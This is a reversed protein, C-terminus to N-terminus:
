FTGFDLKHRTRYTKLYRALSWHSAFMYAAAQELALPLYGLETALEAASKADPDGSRETLLAAADAPSMVDVDLPQVHHWAGDRSTLIVAGSGQPLWDKVDDETEANDYVLLWGPHAKLWALAARARTEANTEEPAVAGLEVALGGLGGLLGEVSEARLWWVLEFDALHRWAYELATQSKGIGGLGHLATLAVPGSTLARELRELLEARGTFHPNSAALNHRTAGPFRPEPPPQGPFDPETTPRGSPGIADLLLRKAADRDQIGVLDCYVNTKLLGDPQCEGVRVGLLKRAAGVPDDVFINTWEALCFKSTLYPPSLVMVTRDCEQIAKHMEAVFNSGAPFDYAQLRTIYGKGRLVFDIWKAWSLDAGTYSIFFDTM